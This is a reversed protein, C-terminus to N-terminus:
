DNRNQELAARLKVRIRYIANSVSKADSSLKKSIEIPSCGSLYLTWVQYEYKSLTSKITALMRELREEELLQESPSDVNNAVGELLDTTPDEKIHKITRVQSVLANFICIKAYLGFEVESQELNYTNVSKYFAVLAEQRFDDKYGSLYEDTCFMNVMAQILPSYQVLLSNFSEQDNKRAAEILKKVNEANPSRDGKKTSNNSNM